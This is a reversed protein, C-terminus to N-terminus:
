NSVYVIYIPYMCLTFQICVCHLNSVYVIYIPYMCLTFLICVCHLNSVYVIYIPYMGIKFTPTLYVYGTLLHFLILATLMKSNSYESCLVNIARFM